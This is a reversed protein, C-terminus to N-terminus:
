ISGILDQIRKLKAEEEMAGYRLGIQFFDLPTGTIIHRMIDGDEDLEVELQIRDDKFLENAYLNENIQDISQKLFELRRVSSLILRPKDQNM